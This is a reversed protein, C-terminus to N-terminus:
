GVIVQGSPYAYDEPNLQIDGEKVLRGAVVGASFGTPGAVDFNPNSVALGMYRLDKGVVTGGARNVGVPATWPNVRIFYQDATTLQAAELGMHTRGGVTIETPAVTGIVVFDDGTHLVSAGLEGTDSLAVHIQLIPTGSSIVFATDITIHILFGEGMGILPARRAQAGQGYDPNLDWGAGSNMFTGATAFAAFFEFQGLDRIM